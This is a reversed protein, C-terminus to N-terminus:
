SAASASCSPWWCSPWSGIVGRRARHHSGSAALFSVASTIDVHLTRPETRRSRSGNRIVFALGIAILLLQLRLEGPACRGGFRWSLVAALVATAAVAIATARHDSPQLVCQRPAGLLALLSSTEHAFNVLRLVGFVLALRCRGPRLLDQSWDNATAQAAPQYGQNRDLGRGSYRRV